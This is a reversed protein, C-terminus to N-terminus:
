SADSSATFHGDHQHIKDPVGAQAKNAGSEDFGSVSRYFTSKLSRIRIKEGIKM